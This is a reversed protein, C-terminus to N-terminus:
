YIKFITKSYYFFVDNYYVKLCQQSFNSNEQELRHVIDEISCGSFCENIRHMQPQLSFNGSKDIPCYKSLTDDVESSSVCSVLADELDALHAFECFHTAVGAHLVDKGLFSCWCLM